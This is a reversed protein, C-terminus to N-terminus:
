QVSFNNRWSRWENTPERGYSAQWTLRWERAKGNFWNCEEAMQIFGHEELEDFAKCATGKSVGLIKAARAVSYHIVPEHPKWVDQLHLM